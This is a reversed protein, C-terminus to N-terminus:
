RVVYASNVYGVMGTDPDEVQYWDKLEAIVLLQDNNKYTAMLETQKSPAFRMNVWGSARTPRVTVRYPNEVMKYTKVIKNLENVDTAANSVSQSKGSGSPTPKKSPKTYSLFRTQVYFVDDGGWYIATWGNGLHYNVTIKSGFAASTLIDSDTSPEYRINLGRGNETYVYMTETASALTPVMLGLVLMAAVMVTLIRKRM